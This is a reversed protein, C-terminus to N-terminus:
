CKRSCSDRSPSRRARECPAFIRRGVPAAQAQGPDPGACVAAGSGLRELLSCPGAASSGPLVLSDAGCDLAARECQQLIPDDGTKHESHLGRAMEQWALSTGASLPSRRLVKLESPTWYNSDSPRFCAPRVISSM